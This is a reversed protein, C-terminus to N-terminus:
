LSVQIRTDFVKSEGAALQVLGVGNNFADPAGSLNEVAISTRHPPIYIQLIPYSNGPYFAIRINKKPDRITALPQSQGNDLVFSNDLEVGKLLKGQVFETYPLLKGTPLLKDNFEVIEKSAFTLELEDVHTGTTFYPHWGDVVPITHGNKNVITTTVQLENNARLTYKAICDYAFPYGADDTQKFHHTLTVAAHEDDTVQATVTFPADYLLGHIANGPALTKQISYSKGEWIYQADKMRCAYPSLKVSKFSTRLNAELDAVDKYSDILNLKGQSHKVKFAHLLAGCSPIIEVQTGAVHDQLAIIDFGAEQFSHIGFKM